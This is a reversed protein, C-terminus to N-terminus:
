GDRGREAISQPRQALAVFRWLEDHGAVEEFQGQGRGVVRGGGEGLEDAAQSGSCGVCCHRRVDPEDRPVMVM